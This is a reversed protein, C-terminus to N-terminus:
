IPCNKAIRRLLPVPIRQRKKADQYTLRDVPNDCNLVAGHDALVNEMDTQGSAESLTLATDGDDNRANVDAEHELLFSLVDVRHSTVAAMLATDGRQDKANVPGGADILTKLEGLKGQHAAMMEATVDPDKVFESPAGEVGHSAEVIEISGDQLIRAHFAGSARTLKEMQIWQPLDRNAEETIAKFLQRNDVTAGSRTDTLRTVQTGRSATWFYEVM